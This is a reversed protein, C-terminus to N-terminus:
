VNKGKTYEKLFEEVEVVTLLVHGSDMLVISRTEYGYTLNIVRREQDAVMKMKKMATNEPSFVAQIRDRVIFTEFGVSILLDGESSM